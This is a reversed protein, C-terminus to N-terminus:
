SMPSLGGAATEIVIQDLSARELWGIPWV